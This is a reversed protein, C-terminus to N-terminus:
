RVKLCASGFYIYANILFPDSYLFQLSFSLCSHRVIVNMIGNCSHLIVFLAIIKKLNKTIISSKSFFLTCKATFSIRNKGSISTLHIIKCTSSLVFGFVIRFTYQFNRSCDFYALFIQEDTLECWGAEHTKDTIM